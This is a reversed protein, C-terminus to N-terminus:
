GHKGLMALNFQEFDRFSMGGVDKPTALKKWSIWHLSRKDLSSGWWYKAICSTFSKCLKNTLKFCSMSFTPIAQLVTKLLVERGACALNKESWGQILSRIRELIYNFTGSTIKGAAMPLGLYRESFAEVNIVLTGKLLVRM